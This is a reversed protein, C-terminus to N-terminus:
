ADPTEKPPAKDAISDNSINRLFFMVAGVLSIALGKYQDPVLDLVGSQELGGFAVVAIAAWSTKSKANGAIFTKM